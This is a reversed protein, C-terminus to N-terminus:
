KLNNIYESVESPKEARLAESFDGSDYGWLAMIYTIDNANSANYDAITDGVYVTENKNMNHLDMIHTILEKKSSLNSFSDLAYIEDFYSEWGLYPIIKITPAIRKNTALYVLHGQSKLLKLMPEIGDFVRVVKYGDSDYKEKFAISLSEIVETDDSGLLVPLLQNLPPGILKATLPQKPVLDCLQFAMSISRLIGESSDILTGDLDFIINM